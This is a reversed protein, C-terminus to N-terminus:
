AIPLSFRLNAARIHFEPDIRSDVLSHVSLDRTAFLSMNEHRGTLKGQLGLKRHTSRKLLSKVTLYLFKSIGDYRENGRVTSLRRGNSARDEQLELINSVEDRGIVNEFIM